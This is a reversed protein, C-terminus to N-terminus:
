GRQSVVRRVHLTGVTAPRLSFSNPYTTLGNIYEQPPWSACTLPESAVLWNKMTKSFIGWWRVKGESDGKNAPSKALSTNSLSTVRQFGLLCLSKLCFLSTTLDKKFNESFLRVSLGSPRKGYFIAMNWLMATKINAAIIRQRVM